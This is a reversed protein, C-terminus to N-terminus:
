AAREYAGAAGTGDNRRTVGALDFPLVAHGASIRDFAASGAELTYAGDGAGAGAGTVAKNDTFRVDAMVTASAGILAKEGPYEQAFTGGGADVFLAVTGRCGVGLMYPWGGTKSSADVDGRGGCFVDHKTNIQTHISGISSCLKHARLTGVTENYLINSRATNGYGVITNHWDLLHTINGTGNDSSPRYAPSSSTTTWEILNNAILAGNVDATTGISFVGNTGGVGRIANCVVIMGSQGRAGNALLVGKLDCGAVLWGEIPDTRGNAGYTLGRVMRIEASGANLVNSAPNTITVGGDIYLSNAAILASNHSANDMDVDRLILRGGTAVNLGYVGARAVTLDRVVLWTQSMNVNAAGFTLVASARPVDPDREIILAAGSQWTPNYTPNAVTAADMIRIRCGDTYTYTSRLKNLAGTVTAFPAAKATSASTSVVGTGDNGSSSIYALPPNAALVPDHTFVQPCFERSNATGASSDLVSAADGVWPYVKANKTVQGVNLSSIDIDYPYVLVPCKDGPRLSIAMASVTQSVTTTGDTVTVVVCAVPKGDRADRHGAIIEGVLRDGVVQRDTTGWNAVPKPSSETSNNTVGAITDTAYVYDSLVVTGATWTAQDPWPERLRRTVILTDLHTTAAGTAGFGARLVYVSQPNGAPDFTPPTGDAWAATWGSVDISTVLPAPPM